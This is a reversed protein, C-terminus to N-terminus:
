LTSAVTQKSVCNGLLWDQRLRMIEHNLQQLTPPKTIFGNAKLSTAQQRDSLQDSTTLMVIPVRDYAPNERIIRLAEMGGMFPMNVDLLILSPLSEAQTLAQILEEGNGLLRLTCEPSTQKFVQQVLFRDDEDDDVLYVCEKLLPNMYVQQELQWRVDEAFLETIQIRLICFLPDDFITV